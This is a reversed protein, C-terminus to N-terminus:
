REYNLVNDINYTIKFFMRLPVSALSLALASRTTGNAIVAASQIVLQIVAVPGRRPLWLIVGGVFEAPAFGQVVCWVHWWRSEQDIKEGSYWPLYWFYRSTIFNIM